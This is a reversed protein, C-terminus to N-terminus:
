VGYAGWAELVADMKSTRPSPAESGSIVAAAALAFLSLGFISNAPTSFPEFINTPSLVPAFHVSGGM